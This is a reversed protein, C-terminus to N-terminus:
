LKEVNDGIKITGEVIVKAYWGRRGIMTKIFSTGKSKGVYPLFELNHCPTCAYTIELEIEGIKFKENPQFDDYSIGETTINEGIDGPQIPWGEHNLQQIM